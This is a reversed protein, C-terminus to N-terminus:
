RLRGDIVHEVYRRCDAVREREADSVDAAPLLEVALLAQRLEGMTELLSGSGGPWAPLLCRLGALCRRECWGDILDNLTRSLAEYTRIPGFLDSSRM